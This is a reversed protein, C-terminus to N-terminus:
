FNKFIFNYIIYFLLSFVFIFLFSSKFSFNNEFNNDFNFMKLLYLLILLPKFFLYSIDSRDYISTISLNFGHGRTAHWWHPPIFLSDGPQLTVKYVIMNNHDMSFFDNYIFNPTDSFPNCRTVLDDGVISSVLWESSWSHNNDHYGFLYITKEGFIQNLIYNDEVHIHCNSAANNGFFMTNSLLTNSINKNINPNFIQSKIKDKDCKIKGLDVEALYLYPLSQSQSYKIFDSITTKKIINKKQGTYYHENNEYVEAPFRANDFTDDLNHINWNNVAITDKCFGRVVFPKHLNFFLSEIIDPNIDHNITFEDLKLYKSNKNKNERIIQFDEFIM